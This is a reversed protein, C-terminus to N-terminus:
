WLLLRAANREILGACVRRYANREVMCVFGVVMWWVFQIGGFLLWFLRLPLGVTVAEFWCGLMLMGRVFGLLPDVVLGGGDFRNQDLVSLYIGKMKKKRKYMTRKNRQQKLHVLFFSFFPFLLSSSRSRSSSSLFLLLFFFSPFPPYPIYIYISLGGFWTLLPAHSVM